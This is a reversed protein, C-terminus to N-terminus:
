KAASKLRNFIAIGGSFALYAVGLVGAALVGDTVLATVDSIDIAANAATAITSGVVVLAKGFRRRPSSLAKDIQLQAQNNM